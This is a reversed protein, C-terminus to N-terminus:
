FPETSLVSISASPHPITYIYLVDSVLLPINIDLFDTWRELDMKQPQTAIIDSESRCEKM